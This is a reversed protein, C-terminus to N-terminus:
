ELQCNNCGSELHHGVLQVARSYFEKGFDVCESMPNISSILEASLQSCPIFKNSPVCVADPDEPPLAPPVTTSGSDAQQISANDMQSLGEVFLQRPSMNGETSLPHCNWSGQFDALHKNIRPVFVFHLCFIDVENLPDLMNESELDNFTDIFSSSVCRTVDRWMREIRENHTSKGTLVCTADNYMDLMYRWIDINEGGHDSRVRSPLGYAQLAGLFADFVTSACNNNSCKMYVICRSFGDVGGHVVLRWRIMKHNGDVHWIANPHPATYVRRRITTSRRCVTRAHDIRHIASRLRARPIKVGIHLLQGQLMVEGINPHESKIGKLLEDLEADSLDTYTGTEIGYEQLRRYLTHRSINLMRAIKTWSYNLEKLTLISERSVELHPRGLESCLCSLISILM